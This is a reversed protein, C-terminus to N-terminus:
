KTVVMGPNRLFTGRMELSGALTERQEGEFFFAVREVDAGQTLTNVMAYVVARERQASLEAIASAYADSLNVLMCDEQVGIALIKMVKYM